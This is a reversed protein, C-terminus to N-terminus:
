ASAGAVLEPALWAAYVDVAAATLEDAGDVAAAIAALAQERLDGAVPHDGLWAQVALCGEVDLFRVPARQAGVEALLGHLAGVLRYALRTCLDEARASGETYVAWPVPAVLVLAEPRGFPPDSSVLV